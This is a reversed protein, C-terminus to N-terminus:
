FNYTNKPDLKKVIVDKLENQVLPDKQFGGGLHQWFVEAYEVGTMKGLNKNYDKMLEFFNDMKHMVQMLEIQTQHHSLMEMKVDIVTSIDVFFHPEPLPSGLPDCLELPATHYLLPTTELPKNQCPVNPLTAVMAATEVVQCTTRHDSHYDMPLHTFVVGANVKRILDTVRIRLDESDFFYGDRQDMCYYDADLVKAAKEAEKKRLEITEKENSNIGGLGGATMTAISIHYGKDKLIKLTGSCFAETDDPHAATVLINKPFDTM